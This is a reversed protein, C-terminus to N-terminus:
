AREKSIYSNMDKPWCTKGLPTTVTITPVGPMSEPLKESMPQLMWRLCENKRKPLARHQKDRRTLHELSTKTSRPRKQVRTPLGEDWAKWTGQDRDVFNKPPLPLHRLGKAQRTIIQEWYNTTGQEKTALTPKQKRKRHTRSKPRGEGVQSEPAGVPLVETNSSDIAPSFYKPKREVLADLQTSWM